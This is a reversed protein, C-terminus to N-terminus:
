KLLLQIVESGHVTAAHYIQLRGGAMHPELYVYQYYFYMYLHETKYKIMRKQSVSKQLLLQGLFATTSIKLLFLEDTNKKVGKKKSAVKFVHM